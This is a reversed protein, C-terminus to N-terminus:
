RGGGLGGSGGRVRAEGFKHLVDEALALDLFNAGFVGLLLQRVRQEDIHALRHLPGVAADDVAGIEDLVRAARELRADLGSDRVQVSAHNDVAGAAEARGQGDLAQLLHSVSARLRKRASKARPLGALVGNALSVVLSRM